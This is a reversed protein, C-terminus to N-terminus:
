KLATIHESSIFAGFQTVQDSTIGYDKKFDNVDSGDRWSGKREGILRGESDYIGGGSGGGIGYMGNDHGEAVILCVGSKEVFTGRFVVLSRSGGQYSSIYVTDGPKLSSTSAIEVTGLGGEYDRIRGIAVDTEINYRLGQSSTDIDFFRYDPHGAQVPGANGQENVLVADDQGDGNTDSTLCHAAFVIQGGEISVGTCSGVSTHVQVTAARIRDQTAEDLPPALELSIPSHQTTTADPSYLTESTPTGDICVDIVQGSRLSGGAIHPNATRLEQFRRGDQIHPNREAIRWWSDGPVVTYRCSADEGVVVTPVSTPESPIDYSRPLDVPLGSTVWRLATYVAAAIFGSRIGRVFASENRQRDTSRRESM